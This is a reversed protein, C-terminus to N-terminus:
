ADPRASSDDDCSFSLAWPGEIAFECTARVAGGPQRWITTLVRIRVVLTSDVLFPDTHRRRRCEHMSGGPIYLMSRRPRSVSAQREFTSFGRSMPRCHIAACAAASARCLTPLRGAM